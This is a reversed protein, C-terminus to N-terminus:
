DAHRGEQRRVAAKGQMCLAASVASLLALGAAVLMVWRFGRVFSVKIAHRLAATAAQEYGDPIAIGALKGRQAVACAALPPPLQLRTSASQGFAHSDQIYVNGADLAECLQRYVLFEYRDADLGKAKLCGLGWVLYVCTMGRREDVAVQEIPSADFYTHRDDETFQPLGYLEDIEERTLITLRHSETSSAM